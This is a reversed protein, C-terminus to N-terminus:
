GITNLKRKEKLEAEKAILRLWRRQKHVNYNGWKTKVAHTCYSTSNIEISHNVSGSCWHFVGWTQQVPYAVGGGRFPNKRLGGM